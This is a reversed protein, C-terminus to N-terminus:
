VKENLFNLQNNLLLLVDISDKKKRRRRRKKRRVHTDKNKSRTMCINMSAYGLFFSYSFFIVRERRIMTTKTSHVNRVSILPSEENKKIYIHRLRNIKSKKKKVYSNVIM